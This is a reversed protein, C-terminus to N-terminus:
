LKLEFEQRALVYIYCVSILLCTNLVNLKTPFQNAQTRLKFMEPLHTFCKKEYTQIQETNWLYIIHHLILISPIM